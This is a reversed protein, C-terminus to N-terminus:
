PCRYRYVPSRYLDGAKSELEPEWGPLRFTHSIIYCDSKLRKQFEGSLREMAGPYLYCIILGTDEWEINFFDQKIITVNKLHRCRLRSIWYPVTSREIGFIIHGSYHRALVPILSGFGCGLEYINGDIVAPLCNQINLKVKGTTATPTIGLRLSWYVISLTILSGACFVLM